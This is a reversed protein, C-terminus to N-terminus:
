SRKTYIRIQDAAKQIEDLQQLTAQQKKLTEDNAAKLDQLVKLTGAASTANGPAVQTPHAAPTPAPGAAQVIMPASTQAFSASFAVTLAALLSFT